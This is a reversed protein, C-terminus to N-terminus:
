RKGLAGCDLIVWEGCLLGVNREHLDHVHFGAKRELKQLADAVWAPAPVSCDCREQVLWGKGSDLVKAVPVGHRALRRLRRAQKAVRDAPGTKYVRTDDIAYARKTKGKGILKM